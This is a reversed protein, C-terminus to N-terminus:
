ALQKQQTQNYLWVAANFAAQLVTDVLATSNLLLLHCNGTHALNDKLRQTETNVLPAIRNKFDFYFKQQDTTKPDSFDEPRVLSAVHGRLESLYKESIIRNSQHFESM